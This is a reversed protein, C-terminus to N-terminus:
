YKNAFKWELPVGNIESYKDQVTFITAEELSTIGVTLDNKLAIDTICSLCINERNLQDKIIEEISDYIIGLRVPIKIDEFNEIISTSKDKTISIPYKVNLIVESDKIIVKSNAEGSSINFEPFDSFDETCFELMENLYLAIQNEIRKKSPMYNKENYYYPIGGPTSIKPTLYYGGNQGIQYIADKGTNEICEEVFTNISSTKTTFMKELEDDFLFYLGIIGIIVIAIIIFITIQGRKNKM